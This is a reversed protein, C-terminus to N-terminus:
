LAYFTLWFLMLHNGLHTFFLVIICNFYITNTDNAFLERNKKLSVEGALQVLRLLKQLDESKRSQAVLPGIAELAAVLQLCIQPSLSFFDYKHVKTNRVLFVKTNQVLFVKTNQNLLIKTSPDLFIKTSPHKPGFIHRAQTCFSWNYSLVANAIRRFSSAPLAQGVTKLKPLMKRVSGLRRNRVYM